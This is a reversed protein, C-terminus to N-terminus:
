ALPSLDLWGRPKMTPPHAGRRTVVIKQGAVPRPSYRSIASAASLMRLIVNNPVATAANVAVISSAPGALACLTQRGLKRRRSKALRSARLAAFHVHVVAAILPPVPIVVTVASGAYLEISRADADFQAALCCSETLASKSRAGTIKKTPCCLLGLPLKGDPAFYRAVLARRRRDSQLLRCPSAGSAAQLGCVPAPLFAALSAPVTDRVVRVVGSVAHGDVLVGARQTTFANHRFL